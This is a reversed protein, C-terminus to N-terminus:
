VSLSAQDRDAADTINAAWLVSPHPGLGKGGAHDRLCPSCHLTQLKGQM